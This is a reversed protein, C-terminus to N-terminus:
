FCDGSPQASLVLVSIQIKKNKPKRRSDLFKRSPPSAVSFQGYTHIITHITYIDNGQSPGPSWELHIGAESGTNEQLGSSSIYIIHLYTSLSMFKLLEQRTM